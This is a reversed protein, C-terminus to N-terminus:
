AYSHAAMRARLIGEVPVNLAVEPKEPSVSTVKISKNQLRPFYGLVAETPNLPNQPGLDALEFMQPNQYRRAELVSGGVFLM